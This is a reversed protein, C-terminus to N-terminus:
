TGQKEKGEVRRVLWYSLNCQLKLRSPPFFQIVNDYVDTKKMDISIYQVAIKARFFPLLASMDITRALSLV